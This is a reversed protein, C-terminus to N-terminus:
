HMSCAAPLLGIVHSQPCVEADLAKYQELAAVVPQLKRLEQQLKGHAQPTGAADNAEAVLQDYRGHLAELKQM